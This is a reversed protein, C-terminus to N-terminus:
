PKKEGDKDAVTKKHFAQHLDEERDKDYFYGCAHCIVLNHVVGNKDQVKMSDVIFQAM